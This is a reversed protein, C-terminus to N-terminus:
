PTPCADGVQRQVGFFRSLPSAAVMRMFREHVGIDSLDAKGGEVILCCDDMTLSAEGAEDRFIAKNSGTFLYGRNECEYSARTLHLRPKDRYPAGVSPCFAECNGCENCFDALVVIQTRDKLGSGQPADLAVLARNPCLTVCTECLSDCQLCRGAERAVAEGGGEISESYSRNNKNERLVNVDIAISEPTLELDIGIGQMLARARDRGHAVAAPLAGSGTPSSFFGDIVHDFGDSKVVDVTKVGAATLDNLLAHAARKDGLWPGEGALVVSVGHRGLEVACAAAAVGGGEGALVVATAGNSPKTPVSQRAAYAKADRIALPEDMNVRTCAKRCRADCVAGLYGALPNDRHVIKLSEQADGEALKALYGPADQGCGCAAVCPAIFCDERPLPRDVTVDGSAVTKKRFPKATLVSDAYEALTPGAERWEGLSEVSAADMRAALVTAYQRLRGYGGPRLLDSCTTVPGLDAALLDPSNFADAGACFSMDPVSEMSESLLQAVNVALPHLPRGSMYVQPESKPLTSRNVCPLTNTLKLNFEVGKNVAAESLNEVLPLAQELKLDHEFVSDPVEIDWGLGGLVNRVREPGLLTPNLKLTTHLGRDEIFHLAIREIEDPPCGHMTSITLNDSVGDPLSVDALPPYVAALEKAAAAMEDPCHAMRDLFRRMAPGTIGELDYGASMNFIFGPDRGDRKDSFDMRHRLALIILYGYLYEDFSQDLKLEQSWECNYGEDRMDICPRPISLEDLTQVTKLEFYRAGCLWGAVLNRALQSHPGAAVGFPTELKRGYRMMAFPDNESPAFFASEPIGLVCGSELEDLMVALLQVFDVPHFHDGSM